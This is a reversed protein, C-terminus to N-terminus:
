ISISFRKISSIINVTSLKHNIEIKKINKVVVDDFSKNFVFKLGYKDFYINSIEMEVEKNVMFKGLLNKKLDYEIEENKLSRIVGETIYLM